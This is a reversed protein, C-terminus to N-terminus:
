SSTDSPASEATQENARVNNNLDNERARMLPQMTQLWEESGSQALWAQWDNGFQQRIDKPLAAFANEAKLVIDLAERNSKPAKTLDAYFGQHRNLATSDGHLYNNLITALETSQRFSEIFDDTNQSGSEKLQLVGNEDFYSEYLTRIACGSDTIFRGRKATLDQMRM